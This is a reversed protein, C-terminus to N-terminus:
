KTLFDEASWGDAGTDYNINWWTFGDAITPGGIVTGLAGTTQTGLLTGSASATARVNLNATTQVRDNLIFKDTTDSVLTPNGGNEFILYTYQLEGKNYSLYFQDSSFRTDVFHHIGNDSASRALSGYVGKTGRNFFTKARSLLAADGTYKYGRVLTDVLSTTYSPDASTCTTGCSAFSNHWATGSPNLGFYSGAYQYAADLGYQNIFRAMAIIRDRLVTNGTARYAYDFAENLIAIQFASEIRYGAAYAGVGVVADTTYQGTEHFGRPDWDPSQVWLNVLRNRLDIWRQKKTIEALRTALLLPRGARRSGYYAMATQGPIANAWAQEALAGIQEAVSLAETDCAGQECTHEYWAILGWGFLHNNVADDNVVDTVYDQKFYRLWANARNLYVANGTRRYMMLYNWLDDAEPDNRVDVDTAGVYYNSTPETVAAPEVSPSWTWGWSTYTNREDQLIPMPYGGVVGSSPPPTISAVTVTVNQNATGGTGTCSLTYTTTTTINTISQSGSTAKSGSWAGSATCSTANTSSWTLTSSSGGTVLTPSASLTITPLSTQAQTTASVPATQASNNGAADKARVTYSYLTSATLGTNSYSTTTVTTLFTGGRYIDYGTVGVNDTSATWSLNIQSSSVATASLNTPITPPTTDSSQSGGGSSLKYVYVNETTANVAIFANKSPIYQFRSFTGGSATVPTPTVTNSGAPTRNEWVMTDM